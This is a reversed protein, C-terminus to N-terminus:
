SSGPWISAPSPASIKDAKADPVSPRPARAYRRSFIKGFVGRGEWFRHYSSNTRFVILLGLVAGGVVWPMTTVSPIEVVYFHLVAVGLSFFCMAM